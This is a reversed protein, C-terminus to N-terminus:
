YLKTRENILIVPKLFTPIAVEQQVYISALLQLSFLALIKAGSMNPLGM